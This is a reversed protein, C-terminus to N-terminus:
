RNNGHQVTLNIRVISVKMEHFYFDQTNRTGSFQNGLSRNYCTGAVPWELNLQIKIKSITKQPACGLKQFSQEDM